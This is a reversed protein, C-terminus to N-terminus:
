SAPPEPGPKAKPKRLRAKARLRKRLRWYIRILLLQISLLGFVTVTKGHPRYVGGADTAAAFFQYISTSLVWVLFGPGLIMLAKDGFDIAKDDKVSRSLEKLYIPWLISIVGALLTAVGFGFSVARAHPDRRVPTGTRLDRVDRLAKRLEAQQQPTLGRALEPPLEPGDTQAPPNAAIGIATVVVVLLLAGEIGVCTWLLPRPGWQRPVHRLNTKAYIRFGGVLLGIAMGAYLEAPSYARRVIRDAIEGGVLEAMTLAAAVICLLLGFRVRTWEAAYEWPAKIRPAPEDPQETEEPQETEDTEEAEEAAEEAAEEEDAPDGPITVTAGCKPCDITAGPDGDSKLRAGCDPCAFRTTAM